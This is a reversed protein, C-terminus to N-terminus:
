GEAVADNEGEAAEGHGEEPRMHPFLIVDRISPADTLLMVLRDVGFGLGGTPPMGYELARVFDEDLVQAEDDGRARLGMQQQFRDRQDIPDNLESFANGAEWGAIFPEFREALEPDDRHRKALPSLEVPYDTIFVPQILKPQVRAEFIEDLLHGREAGPEAELGMQECIARLDSASKGRADVGGHEHIADLLPLRPWPPTLDIAKGQYVIRASGTVSEAVSSFLQETLAMIDTYDAYAQYIELVTFEPNHTRDIGENRFNRSFEYVRELGGVILRKLYLENSIRLYLRMDLTNHHTVFPRASAGGYLPQLVPTEVELFGREDLFRRIAQVVATRKRFTEQVDANLALDLYRRRYRLEKDSFADHVLVKGDRTEEKPVPLPRVSKSLLELSQAQVTKEGTRTLFVPGSVGVFDGIDLLKWMQYAEDGVVNKRVYIQIRGAGDRLDAFASKGHDRVVMLRGALAVSQESEQLAEFGELVEASKHTVEFRYPYPSVGMEKLAALKELRQAVLQAEPTKDQEQELVQEKRHTPRRAARV